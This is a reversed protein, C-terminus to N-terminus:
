YLSSNLSEKVTIEPWPNKRIDEWLAAIRKEQEKSFIITRCLYFPLKNFLEIDQQTWGITISKPPPIFITKSPTWLLRDTIESPAIFGLALAKLLGRRTM